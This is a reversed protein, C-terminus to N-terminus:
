YSYYEDWFLSMFEGWFALVFVFLLGGLITFIWGIVIAATALGDGGKPPNTSRIDNRDVYGLILGLFPLFIAAVLAGVALGSTAPAQM